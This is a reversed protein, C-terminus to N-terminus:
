ALRFLTKKGDKEKVVTGRDVMKRLLASVKQNSLGSLEEDAKMIETVTVANEFGSLTVNIVDILRDNEIDKKSPTKPGSKRSDLLSIEHNCFNVIEANDANVTAILNFMERKTM